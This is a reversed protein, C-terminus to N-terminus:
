FNVEIVNSLVPSSGLHLHGFGFSWCCKNAVELKTCKHPLEQSPNEIKYKRILSVIKPVLIFM